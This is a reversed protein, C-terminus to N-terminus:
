SKVFHHIPQVKLPVQGLDAGVLVGEDDCDLGGVLCAL